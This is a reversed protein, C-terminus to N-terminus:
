SSNFRALQGQLNEIRAKLMVVLGDDEDEPAAWEDGLWGPPAANPTAAFRKRIGCERVRETSSGVRRNADERAVVPNSATAAAAAVAASAAAPQRTPSHEFANAAEAVRPAVGPAPPPPTPVEAAVMEIPSLPERPSPPERRCLPQPQDREAKQKPLPPRHM